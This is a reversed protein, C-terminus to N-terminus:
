VVRASPKTDGVLEVPVVNPGTQESYPIGGRKSSEAMGVPVSSVVVEPERLTVPERSDTERLPEKPKGGRAGGGRSSGGKLRHRRNVMLVALTGVFGLAACAYLGARLSVSSILWGLIPSMGAVVLRKVSSESSLVTARVHSSDIEHNILSKTFPSYVGTVSYQAMMLVVCMVPGLADLLMYSIILIVPLAWMVGKESIKRTLGNVSRSSLAAMLNLVAFIAGMAMFGFGQEKLVPQYLADSMRIIVFIMSSYLIAWMLAPKRRIVALAEGMSYKMAAWRQAVEGGSPSAAALGAGVNPASNVKPELVADGVARSAGKSARRVWARSESMSLAVGVAAFSVVATAVYPLALHITALLGGILAALMLGTHKASSGRGELTRYDEEKGAQKLTDYLFASDAGSTLTLGVAFIFEFTAFVAFGHALLYGLSSFGMLLAGLAMSKSRGLRDAWAGTPVELLIVAASFITYLLMFQFVSLGRSRCFFYTFPKFMHACSLARFFYYLRINRGM